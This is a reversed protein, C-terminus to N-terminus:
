ASVVPPPDTSRASPIPPISGAKPAGTPLSSPESGEEGAVSHPETALSKRLPPLDTRRYFRNALLHELGLALAVLVILLPFLERGVRGVAISRDIEERGHSLHYRGPGLLADLAEPKLRELDTAALPTNASFGRDVGGVTGGARIRYNGATSTAPVSVVHNMQDATLSASENGDPTTLAFVSQTQTDELRIAARQGVLYNLREEGSGALYLLSENSLMVFPWPKFGTALENWANPDSAADSIPTTMMLVHGRDLPRELLAPQGDSYAIVVNANKDIESLGWYEWVPFSQWPVAGGLPRFAALLPHQLDRPALIVGADPAHRRIVPRAPLLALAEPSDFADIPQADRGLWVAVGGGQKVYGTLQQWVAPDLPTPDLLCVASYNDLNRDLLQDFGITECVFRARGNKLLLSPSLAQTLFLARQDIPKAAAVLVRFPPRVDFTFYRTDDAPLNDEGEIRIYGQHSGLDEGTLTFDIAQPEGPRWHVTKQGRLQPTGKSDIVYIAVGRDEEPGTRVAESEIQVQGNKAFVEPSVRMDGLSFDHPEKVGVDILYIAVDSADDLLAKLRGSVDTPWASRSLDTFLYIEKRQQEKKRLMPLAKEISEPLSTATAAPKLQRIRQEAAGLDVAFDGAPQESELVAVESEAPLQGLLWHATAQAVELRTQNDERYAMRPSTDFVLAAAVPAEQSGLAGKAKLSPRALALALMAIAGARLLLLLLHRLQLRRRNAQQRRVIFRMAPFLLHKPVQRMVLHLVIPVAVLAAGILM